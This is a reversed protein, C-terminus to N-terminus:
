GIKLVLSKLVGLLWLADLDDRAALEKVVLFDLKKGNADQVLSLNLANLFFADTSDLGM